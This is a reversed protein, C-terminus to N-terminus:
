QVPLIVPVLSGKFTFNRFHRLNPIRETREAKGEFKFTTVRKERRQIENATITLFTNSRSIQDSHLGVTYLDFAKRRYQFIAKVSPSRKEPLFSTESM